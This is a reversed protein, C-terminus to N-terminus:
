AVARAKQTATLAERHLAFARVPRTFNRLQVYGLDIAGAALDSGIQEAAADSVAIGGPEAYAQLRAAINVGAGYIDDREIIANTIHLAMRFRIRLGAPRESMRSAVTHQLYLACRAADHADEFMALFGDGTNKILRGRHGSIGPELVESRLRMLSTHTYEEHAEMLRCYGAMDAALVAILRRRVPLL